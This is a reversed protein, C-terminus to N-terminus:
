PTSPWASNPLSHHLRSIMALAKEEGVEQVIKVVTRKIQKLTESDQKAPTNKKAKMAELEEELKKQKALCSDRFVEFQNFTGLCNQALIDFRMSLNLYHDSSCSLREAPRERSPAPATPESAEKKVTFELPHSMNIFPFLTHGEDNKRLVKLLHDQFAQKTYLKHMFIVDKLRVTKEQPHGLAGLDSNKILTQCCEAWFTKHKGRQAAEAVEYLADLQSTLLPDDEPLYWEKYQTKRHYKPGAKDEPQRKGLM